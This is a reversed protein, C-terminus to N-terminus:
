PVSAGFIYLINFFIKLLDFRIYGFYNYTIHFRVKRVDLQAFGSLSLRRAKLTWM